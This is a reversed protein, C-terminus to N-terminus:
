AKEKTNKLFQVIERALAPGKKGNNIVTLIGTVSLLKKIIQYNKQMM